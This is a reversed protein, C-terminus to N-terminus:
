LVVVSLGASRFVRVEATGCKNSVGNARSTIYLGDSAVSRQGQGKCSYPDNRNFLYAMSVLPYSLGGLVAEEGQPMHDGDLVGIGGGVASVLRCGSRNMCKRVVICCPGWRNCHSAGFEGGFVASERRRDSGGDLVSMGRSVGSVMGFAM